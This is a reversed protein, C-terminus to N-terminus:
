KINPAEWFEIGEADSLLVYPRNTGPFAYFLSEKMVRQTPNSLSEVITNPQPYYQYLEKGTIIYGTGQSSFAACHQSYPLLFNKKFTWQGSSTYSFLDYSNSIARFLVAYLVDGISFATIPNAAIEPALNSTRSTWQNTEPNYEQLTGNGGPPLWYGLGRVSGVVLPHNAIKEVAGPAAVVKWEDTTSRYEWMAMRNGTKGSDMVVYVREGVTFAGAMATEFNTIQASHLSSNKKWEYRVPDYMLLQCLASNPTTILVYAKDGVQFTTLVRSNGSSSFPETQHTARKVWFADFTLDVEQSVEQECAKIQIKVRSTPKPYIGDLTSISLYNNSSSFSPNSNAFTVSVPPIFNRGTVNVPSWSSNYSFLTPDITQIQPPAMAFKQTMVPLTVDRYLASNERRVRLSSYRWPLAPIKLQIETTSVQEVRVEMVQGTQDGLFEIKWTHPEGQLNRGKITLHDEYFATKPTFDDVVPGSLMVNIGNEKKATGTLSTVAVPLDGEPVDIPILCRITTATSWVILAERQGIMVKLDSKRYGLNEGSITVTDGWTAKQPNIEQIVPGKGGQSPFEEWDGYVTYGDRTKIYTRVIYNTKTLGYSVRAEIRTKGSSFSGLSIREINPEAPLNKFTKQGIEWVFGHDIIDGKPAELLQAQFTAGTSNIDTITTPSLLGHNRLSKPEEIVCTSLLGILGILSLLSLIRQGYVSNFSYM